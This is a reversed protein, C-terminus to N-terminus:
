TIQEGGFKCLAGSNEQSTTLETGTHLMKVPPVCKIEHYKTAKFYHLRTSSFEM